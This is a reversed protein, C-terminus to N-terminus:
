AARDGMSRPYCNALDKMAVDRSTTTQTMRVGDKKREVFYGGGDFRIRYLPDEYLVEARALLETKVPKTLTAGELTAAAVICDVLYAEDHAILTVRDLHRLAKTRDSQVKHWINSDRLDDLVMDAPMRVVVHKWAQGEAQFMVRAPEIKPVIRESAAATVTM